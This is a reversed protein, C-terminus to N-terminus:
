PRCSLLGRYDCYGDGIHCCGFSARSCYYFQYTTGCRYACYLRGNHIGCNTRFRPPLDDPERWDFWTLLGPGPSYLPEGARCCSVWLMLAIAVFLFAKGSIKSFERISSIRVLRNVRAAATATVMSTAPKARELSAFM